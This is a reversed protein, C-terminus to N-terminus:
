SASRGRWGGFVLHAVRWAGGRRVFTLVDTAESETAAGATRTAALVRVVAVHGDIRIDTRVVRGAADASRPAEPELLVHGPLLYGEELAALAVTAAPLLLSDLTVTDRAALAAYVESVLVELAREDGRRLSGLPEREELHCAPTALLTLALFYRLPSM